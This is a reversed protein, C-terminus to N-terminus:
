SSLTIKPVREVLVIKREASRLAYLCTRHMKRINARPTNCFGLIPVRNRFSQWGTDEKCWVNGLAILCVGGVCVGVGGWVCVFCFLVFCM